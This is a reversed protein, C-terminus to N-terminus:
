GAIRQIPIEGRIRRGNEDFGGVYFGYCGQARCEEILERVPLAVWPRVISVVIAICTRAPPLRM